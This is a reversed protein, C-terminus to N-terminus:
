ATKVCFVFLKILKNYCPLFLFTSILNTAYSVNRSYGEDPVLLDFSKSHENLNSLQRSNSICTGSSSIVLCFTMAHYNNKYNITFTNKKNIKTESMTVKKAHCSLSRRLIIITKRYNTSFMILKHTQLVIIYSGIELNFGLELYSVSKLIPFLNLFLM